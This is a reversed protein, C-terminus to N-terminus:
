IGRIKPVVGLSGSARSKYTRLRASAAGLQAWESESRNKGAMSSASKVGEMYEANKWHRMYPQSQWVAASQNAYAVELGLVKNRAAEDRMLLVVTAGFADLAKEKYAVVTAEVWNSGPTGPHNLPNVVGSLTEAVRRTASQKAKLSHPKTGKVTWWAYWAGKKGAVPGVIGGPRTIRSRRGRVSQQVLGSDKPAAERVYPALARAANVTAFQELKRVGAYGLTNLFADHLAKADRRITGQLELEVQGKAM